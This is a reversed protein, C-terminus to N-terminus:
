TLTVAGDPPVHLVEGVAARVEADMRAIGPLDPMSYANAYAFRALADRAGLYVDSRYVPWYRDMMGQRHPAHSAEAAALEQEIERWVRGKAPLGAHPEAPM